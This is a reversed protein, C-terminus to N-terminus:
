FLSGQNQPVFSRGLKEVRKVLSKFGFHTLTELAQSGDIQWRKLKEFDIELPVDRKIKALQYSLEGEKRGKLIIEKLKASLQAQNQYVEKFGGFENILKVATKPGIGKVGPYNDSPDGVLAKYDVIQPPLVGMKEKVEKEDFLKAESLGKIPLYVRVKRKDDVLQLIDRDGTVIIVEDIRSKEKKERVRFSITGILDDAEYGAKSFVPIKFAEIVEKTKEIQSALEKDMEPRQIQYDPFMEQRFTKEKRDFCVALHTPRLDTIIRLLMSTFGYVANVQGVKSTLPPLAHYARHLIAHGDILVLKSM